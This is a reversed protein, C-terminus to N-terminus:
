FTLEAELYLYDADKGATGGNFVLGNLDVFNGDESGDGVFFHRWGAKFLLDATYHYEAWLGTEWGLETDTEYTLFGLGPLTVRGGNVRLHWPQDFPEVAEFWAVEAGLRLAETPQVTVGAQVTWFNSLAGQDDLIMSYSRDSFLRNFSISSEPRVLASFPNLWEWFTIDRNDEGDFYAAALWLRPQWNVDFTYGVEADAAWASFKATNDGYGYPRFLFGMADADGFQYAVEANYDFGGILGAARVGVTHLETTGYSDLGLWDEFLEQFGPFATDALDRSDRVLMWYADLTIEELGTYSGYLAFLDTDQNDGVTFSREALKAWLADVSFQDDMWTARVGDFSLGPFEPLNDGTGILWGSGLLMEQRGIRLRIPTDFLENAEIYGQHVVVDGVGRQDLGTVYNSRFNEGWAHYAEFEVFTSIQETFDARVNLRTRQEVLQYDDGRSDWDFFSLINQGGFPDGIPRGTVANAGYRLNNGTFVSGTKNGFNNSWAQGRIRLEGGVLVTQLEATANCPALAGWAFVVLM